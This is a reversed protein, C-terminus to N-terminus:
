NLHTKDAPRRTAFFCVVIHMIDVTLARRHLFLKQEMCKQKNPSLTAFGFVKSLNTHHQFSFTAFTFTKSCHKYRQVFVNRIRINKVNETANSSCAVFKFELRSVVAWVEIDSFVMPGAPGHGKPACYKALQESIANM